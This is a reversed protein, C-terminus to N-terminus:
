MTGNRGVGGAALAAWKEYGERAVGDGKVDVEWQQYGADHFGFTMREPCGANSIPPDFSQAYGLVMGGSSTSVSETYNRSADGWSFCKVCRYVIEYGSANASSRIVSLQPSTTGHYPVPMFYDTAWRFSTLVEGGYPWAMLLLDNTMHGAHAIGCWGSWTTNTSPSQCRLLGIYESADKSGADAPLVMGFTFASGVSGGIAGAPPTTWTSFTINTKADTYTGKTLPVDDQAAGCSGFLLAAVLSVAAPFQM